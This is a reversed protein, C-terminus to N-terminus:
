KTVASCHTKSDPKTLCEAMWLLVAVDFYLFAAVYLYLMVAISNQKM